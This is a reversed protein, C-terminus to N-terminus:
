HRHGGGGGHKGAGGKQGPHEDVLAAAAWYCSLDGSLRICDLPAKAEDIDVAIRKAFGLCARTAELPGAAADQAAKRGQLAALAAADTPKTCGVTAAKLVAAGAPASLAFLALASTIM